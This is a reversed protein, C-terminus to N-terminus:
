DGAAGLDVVRYGVAPVTLSVERGDVSVAEGTLADAATHATLAAPLTLAVAEADDGKNLVVLTRGETGARLYAWVDGEAHLTHFGGRRLAPRDRRLRVLAAV